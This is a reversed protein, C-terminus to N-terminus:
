AAQDTVQVGSSGGERPGVDRDGVFDPQVMRLDSCSAVHGSRQSQKFAYFLTLPYSANAVNRLNTFAQEFGKEFFHQAKRKDGGHRYPTAILESAKPTLVTSFLDPYIDGLSRRLWVYFFDSLDAYGINDYYPPDTAIVAGSVDSIVSMADAQRPLGPPREAVRDLVKTVWTVADDLNGSSDSFPDGETFDWVMPLAQRAFTSRIKPAFGSPNPDWSTVASHRDAMRSVIFALYTLVADAYTPEGGDDIVRKRAERVLDSFTCLATLQRNTFLDAHGTLGYAPPSFWRPNTPMETDPIDEPRPVQAAREHAPMAPLYIRERDGEAVIAMLQTGMRGSMGEARVHALPIPSGCVLCTAGNRGATGEVTSGKPGHGIRFSVSKTGVIPQVWAEKGKKKELWFSRVLPMRAECAPNSCIVTKAWIWAIVTAQGGGPLSASPYLHGIRRKAEDRMWAGYYRVDEALGQAGRWTRVDLRGEEATPRVPPRGAFRAPLEILAKTILVAVPNLDSAHVELGLRQAELPISGGGCFPDLFAPPHHGCSRRIEERAEGLVDEDNSAEWPVLREIIRFLRRREAGQAEETPFREPHASPDDVLQAFLVARCAALPRRAWWLHLTSPHGHRISKERAAERNIADLPLAVEILKRRPAQSGAVEPM